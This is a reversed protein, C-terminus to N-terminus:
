YGTFNETRIRDEPIKLDHLTSTLAAVMGPPGCLYFIPEHLHGTEEEIMNGDVHGTRGSWPKGTTPDTDPEDVTYTVALGAHKGALADLTRRFVIETPDRNGFLLHIPHDHGNEAAHEFMSLLPTIGIGGSIMVAPHDPDLTFRGMPGMLSVEDGTNLAQFAQKFASDSLRVAFTVRERDPGSAMSLFRDDPGEDTDLQLM